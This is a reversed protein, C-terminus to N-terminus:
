GRDWRCESDSSDDCRSLNMALWSANLFSISAARFSVIPSVFSFILSHVVELVNQVTLDRSNSAGSSSPMIPFAPAIAAFVIFFILIWGVAFINSLLTDLDAFINSLLTDLDAFIKSLLTDLDLLTRGVVNSLLTDSDASCVKSTPSEIGFARVIM